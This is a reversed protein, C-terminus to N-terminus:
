FTRLANIVQFTHSVANEKNRGVFSGSQIRELLSSNNHNGAVSRSENALLFRASVNQSTYNVKANVGLLLGLQGQLRMIKIRM